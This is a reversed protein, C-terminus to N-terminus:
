HHGIDTWHPGINHQLAETHRDQFWQPLCVRSLGINDFVAANLGVSKSGFWKREKLVISEAIYNKDPVTVYMLSCHYRFSLQLMAGTSICSCRRGRLNQLKKM